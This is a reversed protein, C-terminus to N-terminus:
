RIGEVPTERHYGGTHRSVPSEPFWPLFYAAAFLTLLSVQFCGLPVTRWPDLVGGAVAAVETLLLGFIVLSTLAAVGRREVPRQFAWLLLAAWGLMLAAGYGMAFRYNGSSGHVGWVHAGLSPDLMPGLAAMDTVAGALFAVRLLREERTNNARGRLRDAQGQRGESSWPFRRRRGRPVAATLLSTRSTLYGILRDHELFTGM